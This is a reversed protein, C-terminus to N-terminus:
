PFLLGKIREVIFVDEAWGVADEEFAGAAQLEEYEEDSCVHAFAGVRRIGGLYVRLEAPTFIRKIEAIFEPLEAAFEPHQDAARIFNVLKEGILYGLAKETGFAERIGQAADCQAIWIKHFEAMDDGGTM